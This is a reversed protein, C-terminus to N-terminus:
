LARTNVFSRYWSNTSPSKPTTGPILYLTSQLGPMIVTSNTATTPGRATFRARVASSQATSFAHARLIALLATVAPCPRYVPTQGETLTDGINTVRFVDQYTITTM